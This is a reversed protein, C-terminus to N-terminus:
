IKSVNLKKLFSYFKEDVIKYPIGHPQGPIIILKSKKNNRQINEIFKKAYESDYEDNEGHIDWTLARINSSLSIPSRVKYSQNSKSTERDIKSKIRDYVDENGEYYKDYNNYFNRIDYFNGILFLGKFIDYKGALISAVVAGRSEGLIIIRNSDIYDKEKFYNIVDMVANQTKPGCYDPPGSSLGYGPQSISVAVAKYKSSVKKLMPHKYYYFGGGNRKRLHGHIFVILPIKEKTKFPKTWYFEIKSKDKKIIEFHAKIKKSYKKDFLYIDQKYSSQQFVSCSQILFIILVSFQKM